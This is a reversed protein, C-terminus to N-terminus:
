LGAHYNAVAESTRLYRNYIRLSKLQGKLSPAIRLKDAGNVDGIEKKFRGWGYQRYTGGDCLVGDVVVSIIKPGGDVIFVVHHLANAKLLRPDCDWGARHKGDSIVLQLTGAQTTTLEIGKGTENRSDLVIQGAALGSFTVWLDIAFGGGTLGPLEPMDVQGRLKLRAADMSLVLGNTAITKIRGQMWLGELLTRDIEHVRAINKQTETVWFCGDQEILDPYSMRVKTDPDYLLIEAESWHILGNKELGGSIWAPNRGEFDKGGHNHFWFLFKGGRTRWIRPCARPHKFKKGGPTYTAIEPKSWSYGGDRSYSHCPHGITTRYMCYLDGSDLPVLNHEEQISGFEPARLGHEGDPLMQWNIKSADPETLINGSRFFWGEGDDLMYRGLKTFGFFVSNGYIIPKGVGWMIQVQGKWDNARDCATLRVPLRYRKSWTRGNDDSYKYCYWGLMDARIKRGDPLTEVKDGNYDYFVYVRGGPTILPMVWSAEPGDAPEIDILKSWTKGKDSSVSAVIHQGVQGERGGGTTLTCLWSGDRTIVVYPQDAYNGSPIEYGTRIDRWDSACLERVFPVSSLLVVAIVCGVYSLADTAAKRKIQNFMKAM